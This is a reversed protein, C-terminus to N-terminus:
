IHSFLNDAIYAYDSMSSTKWKLDLAGFGDRNYYELKFAVKGAAVNNAVALLELDFGGNEYYWHDIVLVGGIWLRMGQDVKAKFSINGAQAVDVFGEYRICAQTDIFSHQKAVPYVSAGGINWFNVNAQTDQWKQTEFGGNTSNNPDDEYPGTTYHAYNWYTTYLGTAFPTCTGYINAYTQKNIRLWALEAKADADAQSIISVHVGQAISITAEGGIYGAGCNSRKYTGLREIAANYYSKLQCEGYLNAYDQTNLDTFHAEALAQADAQSINSSFSGALIIIEAKAGILPSECDNRLYSGERSIETNLYTGIECAGHVEAYAQTNLANMEALARQNAEDKSIESGWRGAPIIIQPYTGWYPQECGTHQYACIMSQEDSLFKPVACTVSASPQVYDPDDSLNLKIQRPRVAENTDPYFLEIRTFIANGTRKFYADLECTSDGYNRWKTPRTPQAILKPLESFNRETLTYRFTLRISTLEPNDKSDIYESTDLIMPIHGKETVEFIEEALLLENFYKLTEITNKKFFGTSITLSRNGKVSIVRLEALEATNQADIEIINRVVKLQRMSEGLLRLTDFAGLSNNILLSREQHQYFGDVLYTRVNSLREDNQNSVWVEYQITDAPLNLQSFGVPICVVQYMPLTHINNSVLATITESTGDKKTCRVRLNIASPLPTFNLLFYLYEESKKGVVKDNPQFTLFKGAWIKSYFSDGYLKYDLESIGSKIIQATPLTVDRVMPEVIERLRFNSTMGWAVTMVNQKHNPKKRALSGDLLNQIQSFTAGEYITVGVQTYPMKEKRRLRPYAVYNDSGLFEPKSIELFYEIVARDPYTAPDAEQITHTLKNRSLTLPYYVLDTKLIDINSM